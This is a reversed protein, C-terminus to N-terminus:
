ALKNAYYTKAEDEIPVSQLREVQEATLSKAYFAQAVEVIKVQTGDYKIHQVPQETQIHGTQLVRCYAGYREAQVFRKVFKPDNMRTALTVCPIRPGSVELVIEGMTFQDGICIPASELDTITINEGFTGPELQIDLEDSWWAYDPMGYLYVAQELGGHNETDIIVDGKLGLEGVYVPDSTPLKYIGTKGSKANISREVGVNVSYIEM